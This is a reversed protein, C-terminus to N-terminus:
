PFGKEDVLELVRCIFYYTDSFKKYAARPTQREEIELATSFLLIHVALGMGVFFRWVIRTTPQLRTVLIKKNIEPLPASAGRGCNGGRKQGTHAETPNGVVTTNKGAFCWLVQLKCSGRKETKIYYQLPSPQAEM